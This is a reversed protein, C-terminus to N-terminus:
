ISGNDNVTYTISSSYKGPTITGAPVTLNATPYYRKISNADYSPTDPENIPNVYYLPTSSYGDSIMGAADPQHNAANDIMTDTGAADRYPAGLLINFNNYGTDTMSNKFPDMTASLSWTYTNHSSDGDNEQAEFYATSKSADTLKYNAGTTPAANKGFDFSPAHLLNISRLIDFDIANSQGLIQTGNMVFDVLSQKYASADVGSAGVHYAYTYKFNTPVQTFQASYTYYKSQVAPLQKSTTDSVTATSGDSATVVPLNPISTNGVKPVWISVTKDTNQKGADLQTVDAEVPVDKDYDASGTFHTTPQGATNFYKKVQYWNTDSPNQNRFILYSATAKNYAANPDLTYNQQLPVTGNRNLHIEGYYVRNDSSDAPNPMQYNFTASLPDSSSHTVGNPVAPDPVANNKAVNFSMAHVKTDLNPISNWNADQQNTITSLAAQLDDKAAIGLPDRWTGLAQTVGSGALQSDSVVYPSQGNLTLQPNLPQSLNITADALPLGNLTGTYHWKKGDLSGTISKSNTAANTDQSATVSLTSSAAATPTYNAVPENDAPLTGVGNQYNYLSYVNAYRQPKIIGGTKLQDQNASQFVPAYNSIYDSIFDSQKPIGFSSGDNVLVGDKGPDPTATRYHLDTGFKGQSHLTDTFTTSEPKSNDDSWHMRDYPVIAGTWSTFNTYTPYTTGQNNDLATKSIVAYDAPTMGAQSAENGGQGTQDNFAIHLTKQIASPTSNDTVDDNRGVNNLINYPYVLQSSDFMTIRIADTAVQDSEGAKNFTGDANPAAFLRGSTLAKQDSSAGATYKAMDFSFNIHASGTFPSDSFFKGIGAILNGLNPIISGAGTPRTTTANGSISNLLAIMQGTQGSELVPSKGSSLPLLAYVNWMPNGAIGANPTRTAFDPQINNGTKKILKSDDLTTNDSSNLQDLTTATGSAIQRNHLYDVYDANGDQLQMQSYGDAAWTTSAKQRYWFPIGKVKLFFSQSDNPDLYVHHDFQLPFNLNKIQAITAGLFKIAYSDVTLYYYSKDWDVSAAMAKADIGKAVKVRVMVAWDGAMTADVLSKSAAVSASIPVNGTAQLYGGDFSNGDALKPTGTITGDSSKMKSSVNSQNFIGGRQTSTLKDTAQGAWAQSITAADDGSGFDVLGDSNVYNLSFYPKGHKNDGANKFTIAVPSATKSANWATSNASVASSGGGSIDASLPTGAGAGDWGNYGWRVFSGESPKRERNLGPITYMSIPNNQQMVTPVGNYNGLKLSSNDLTDGITVAKVQPGSGAILAGAVLAALLLGVLGQKTRHRKIIRM